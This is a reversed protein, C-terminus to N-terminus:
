FNDKKGEKKSFKEGELFIGKGKYVDVKKLKKLKFVFSNLNCLNVCSLYLKKNSLLNLKINLPIKVKIIHSFGLLILLYNNKLNFKFGVGELNIVKSNSNLSWTYFNNILKLYTNFLYKAGALKLFYYKADVTIINSFRYKIFGM